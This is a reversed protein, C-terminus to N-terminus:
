TGRSALLKKKVGLSIGELNRQQSKPTGETGLWVQSELDAQIEWPFVKGMGSRERWSCGVGWPLAPGYAEAFDGPVHAEAGRGAGLSGKDGPPRATARARAETGPDPHPAESAKQRGRPPSGAEPSLSSLDSSFAEVQPLRM